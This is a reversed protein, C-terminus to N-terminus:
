LFSAGRENKMHNGERVRTPERTAGAVVELGEELNKLVGWSYGLLLSVVSHPYNPLYRDIM